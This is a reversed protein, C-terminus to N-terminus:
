LKEIILQASSCFQWPNFKSIKPNVTFLINNKPHQNHYWFYNSLSHAYHYSYVNVSPIEKAMNGIDGYHSRPDVDSLGRNFDNIIIYSDKPLRNLINKILLKKLNIINSNSRLLESILYSIIVINPSNNKFFSDTNDLFEYVDKYKVEFPNSTNSKIWDHIPRWDKNIEIGCYKISKKPNLEKQLTDIGIFDPCSGCGLSLINLESLRKLNSYKVLLYWIESSYKYTYKCSYFYLINQCNYGNERKGYHINELCKECDGTQPCQNKCDSCIKTRSYNSNCYNLFENIM